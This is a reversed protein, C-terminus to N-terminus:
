YKISFICGLAVLITGIWFTPDPIHHWFIWDFLGSFVMSFYLLPAIIKPPAYSMARTILDQYATGSVGIMLLITLTNLNPTKWSFITFIGSLIFTLPFYYLMITYPKEDKALEYVGVLSGATAIGSILATLAIPNFNSGYPKLIFIIGIFGVILALWNKANTKTGFFILSLIPIFLTYTMALSTANSLPVYRLAYFLSFMSIFSSVTRILHIWLHKTKLVLKKGRLKKHGFILMIWFLSVAFRFFVTMSETTSKAVLKVLLTMISYCFTAAMCLIIARTIRKSDLANSDSM